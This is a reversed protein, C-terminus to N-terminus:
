AQKHGSWKWLKKWCCCISFQIGSLAGSALLSLVYIGAVMMPFYAFQGAADPVRGCLKTYFQADFIYSLLYAGLTWESLRKLIRRTRKGIRKYDGRALFNFVLASQVLTIFSYYETWAGNIFPVGHSRYYVFSGGALWVVVIWFLNTSRKMGLPYERLYCGMFYYTLPYIGIWWSPLIKVYNASSSPNSWWELASFEYINLISPLSTMCILIGLFMRKIKHSNINEYCLNLFPALFFLGIYMEIYWGYPSLSYNLASGMLEMLTYSNSWCRIRYLTCAIGALLYTGLTKGIKGFYNREPRKHCMLYGTLMMFLPVCIMAGTRILTMAYMAGGSVPTVYYSTNLFFHVSVVCLLAFCRVVDLAPSRETKSQLQM